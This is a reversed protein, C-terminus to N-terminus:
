GASRPPPSRGSVCPTHSLRYHQDAPQLVNMAAAATHLYYDFLRTLATRQDEPPDHTTTLHTAYARLLDHFTYRGPTHQTLLHARTLEGLAERAQHLPIETLHAAAALAIDPGPHLGLLRFMGAAPPSLHQYSWSFVARVSARPIVPTWLMLAPTNM